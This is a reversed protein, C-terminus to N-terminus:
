SPESSRMRHHVLAGEARGCRTAQHESDSVRWRGAQGEGGKRMANVSLTELLTRTRKASRNAHAFFGFCCCLRQGCNVVWSM